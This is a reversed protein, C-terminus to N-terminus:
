PRSRPLSAVRARSLRAWIVRLLAILLPCALLFTVGLGAFLWVDLRKTWATAPPELGVPSVLTQIKWPGYPPRWLLRLTPVEARSLESVDYTALGGADAEVVTWPRGPVQVCVLAHPWTMVTETDIGTAIQRVNQRDVTTASCPTDAPGPVGEEPPLDDPNPPALTPGDGVAGAGPPLDPPISPDLAGPSPPNSAAVADLVAQTLLKYGVDSPHFSGQEIGTLGGEVKTLQLTNVAALDATVGPECPRAGAFSERTDAVEFGARSAQFDIMADLAPLLRSSLFSTEVLSLGPVCDSVVIPNPYLVVVVSATPAAERVAAYTQALRQEKARVDALIQREQRACDERLCSKVIDGFGADNGGISLLVLSVEGPQEDEDPNIRPHLLAQLQPEGGWVNKPSHRYQAEAMHDSVATLHFTRAGSCTANVLRYDLEKAIAYAYSENSRHCRNAETNTGALYPPAGEGAIFSDGLAVMLPRAPDDTPSPSDHDARPDRVTVALWTMLAFLPMALAIRWIWSSSPIRM